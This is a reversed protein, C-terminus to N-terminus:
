WRSIVPNWPYISRKTIVHAIAFPDADLLTALSQASDAECILLANPTDADVPGSAVNVGRDKLERLFARHQPRIEDALECLSPDYDYFVAFYAM